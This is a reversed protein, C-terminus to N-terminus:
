TRTFAGQKIYKAGEVLRRGALRQDIAFSDIFHIVVVQSAQPISENSKDKLHVM